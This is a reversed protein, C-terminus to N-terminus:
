GVSRPTSPATAPVPYFRAVGGIRRKKARGAVILRRFSDKVRDTEDRNDRSRESGEPLLELDICMAIVTGGPSRCLAEAVREDLRRAAARAATQAPKAKAHRKDERWCRVCAPVDRGEWPVTVLADREGCRACTPTAYTRVWPAAFDRM